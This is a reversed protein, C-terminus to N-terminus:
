TEALLAVYHYLFFLVQCYPKPIKGPDKGGGTPQERRPEGSGIMQGWRVREKAGAGRVGVLKM